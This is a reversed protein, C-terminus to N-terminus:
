VNAFIWSYFPDNLFSKGLSQSLEVLDENANTDFIEINIDGKELSAPDILTKEVIRNSNFILIKKKYVYIKKFM